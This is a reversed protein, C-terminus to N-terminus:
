STETEDDYCSEINVGYIEEVIKEYEAVLETVQELTPEPVPEETTDEVKVVDIEKTNPKTQTINYKEIICAMKEADYIGDEPKGYEKIYYAYESKILIITDLTLKALLGKSSVGVGMKRNLKYELTKITNDRAIIKQEAKKTIQYNNIYDYFLDILEHRLNLNSSTCCKTM